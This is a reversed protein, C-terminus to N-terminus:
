FFNSFYIILFLYKLCGVLGKKNKELDGDNIPLGLRVEIYEPKSEYKIQINKIETPPQYCVLTKEYPDFPHPVV